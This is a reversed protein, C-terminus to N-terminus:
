DASAHQLTTYVERTQAAIDAWDLTDAVRRNRNGMTRLRERDRIATVLAQHLGTSCDPDYSIGGRQDGILSPICGSHPAILARGFTMALIASGSTLVGTFPLVVADAALFYQPVDEDPVYELRTQVRPDNSALARIDHEVVANWPNGVVLLTVDHDLQQVTELLGDVNKYPRILGFYLLVPDDTHLDLATRAEDRTGSLSYFPDYNGHPIVSIGTRNLTELRYYRTTEAAAEPCHVILQHMCRAAVARISREARPASREHDALNHVTWVLTVGLLRLIVLEVLLRIGLLITLLPANMRETVFFRHLWHLHIVDPEGEQVYRTLLPVMGTPKRASVAVDNAALGDLLGQQYPNADRYDPMHLVSLVQLSSETNQEQPSLRSGRHTGSLQQCALQFAAWLTHTGVQLHKGARM